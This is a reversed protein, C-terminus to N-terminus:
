PTETSETSETSENVDDLDVITLSPDYGTLFRVVWGLLSFSDENEEIVGQILAREEYLTALSGTLTEDSGEAVVEGTTKTLKRIANTNHALSSRLQGLNKYDSGFLLTKWKPRGEVAEIADAVEDVEEEEEDAIEEIDDSVDTNGVFDETEAVNNLDEVVEEINKRHQAAKENGGGKAGKNSNDPKGGGKDGSKGKGQQALVDGSDASSNSGYYAAGVVLVLLLVAAPIHLIRLTLSNSKKSRPM